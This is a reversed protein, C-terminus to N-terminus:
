TRPAEKGCTVDTTRFLRAGDQSWEALETGKCESDAIPHAVADPIVVEDIGRQTGVITQMRVGRQEPTICMRAGTGALDDDLRWCGIWSAFRSDVQPTSAPPAPSQAFASSATLTLALLTNKM